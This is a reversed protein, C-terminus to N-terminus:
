PTDELHFLHLDSPKPITAGRWEPKVGHEQVADMLVTRRGCNASPAAPWARSNTHNAGHFSEDPSLLFDSARSSDWFRINCPDRLPLRRVPQFCPCVNVAECSRSILHSQVEDCHEHLEDSRSTTASATMLPICTIASSVYIMFAQVGRWGCRAIWM